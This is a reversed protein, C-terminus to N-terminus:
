YGLERCRSKFAAEGERYSATDLRYSPEYNMLELIWGRWLEYSLVDDPQAIEVGAPPYGLVIFFLNMGGITRVEIERSHKFKHYGEWPNFRWMYQVRYTETYGAAQDVTPYFIDQLYKVPRYINM